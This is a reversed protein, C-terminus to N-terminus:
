QVTQHSSWGWSSLSAGVHCLGCTAHICLGLVSFLIQLYLNNEVFLHLCAFGNCAVCKHLSFFSYLLNSNKTKLFHIHTPLSINKEINAWNTTNNFRDKIDRVTKWRLNEPISRIPFFRTNTKRCRQFLKKSIIFSGKVSLIWQLQVKDHCTKAHRDLSTPPSLFPVQPPCPRGTCGWSWSETWATPMVSRQYQQLYSQRIDWECHPLFGKFHIM